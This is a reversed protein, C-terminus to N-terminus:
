GADSTLVGVTVDARRGERKKLQEATAAKRRRAALVKKHRNSQVHKEWEISTVVVVGCEECTRKEWLDTSHSLDQGRPTLNEKAAISLEHPNPVEQNALHRETLAIAPRRVTEDWLSLQTGDLLFMRNAANNRIMANLFKFQIWRIQRKAYQRTAIQTREIAQKKLDELNDEGGSLKVHMFSAFEKFGISVWIGKSMDTEVGEMDMHEKFDYMTQLEELLGQKMMKIVREDLRPKLVEPSAHIWFVLPDYRLGESASGSATKQEAYIDSARKGTMLWIELSRQIKRRENPHWRDAMVPDVEQLRELLLETPEQLIEDTLSRIDGDGYIAPENSEVVEKDVSNAQALTADKLLLSQVYYHTGGVLIPLKGRERIADVIKLAKPVFEGVTWAPDKLSIEGLLHHIVGKQETATIKNTIIDLGQYLQVADCNIIEGNFKLALDVALTSKGTGTAGIIAVIKQKGHITSMTRLAHRAHRCLM